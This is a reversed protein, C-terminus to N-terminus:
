ERSSPVGGGAAPPSPWQKSGCQQVPLLVPAFISSIEILFIHNPQNPTRKKTQTPYVSNIRQKTKLYHSNNLKAFSPCLISWRSKPAARRLHSAKTHAVPAMRCIPLVYEYRLIYVFNLYSDTGPVISLKSLHHQKKAGQLFQSLFYCIVIIEQGMICVHNQNEPKPSQQFLWFDRSSKKRLLRDLCSSQGFFRREPTM